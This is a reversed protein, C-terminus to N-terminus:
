LSLRHQQSEHFLYPSRFGNGIDCAVRLGYSGNLIAPLDVTPHNSPHWLATLGYRGVMKTESILQEIREYETM